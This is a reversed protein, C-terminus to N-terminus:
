VMELEPIYRTGLQLFDTILAEKPYRVCMHYERTKDKEKYGQSMYPYKQEFLSVYVSAPDFERNMANITLKM